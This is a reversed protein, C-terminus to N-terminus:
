SKDTKIFPLLAILPSVGYPHRKIKSDVLGQGLEFVTLVKDHCFLDIIIMEITMTGELQDYLNKVIAHALPNNEYLKVARRELSSM